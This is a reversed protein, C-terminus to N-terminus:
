QKGFPKLPPIVDPIRELIDVPIKAMKADTFGHFEPNSWESDPYKGRWALRALRWGNLRLGFYYIKWLGQRILRLM